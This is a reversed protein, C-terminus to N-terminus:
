DWVLLPTGDQLLLNVKVIITNYKEIAKNRLAIHAESLEEHSTKVRQLEEGLATHAGSLETHSTKVRQLEENVEVINVNNILLPIYSEGVITSEIKVYREICNISLTTEVTGSPERPTICNLTLNPIQNLTPM